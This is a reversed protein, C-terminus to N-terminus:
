LRAIREAVAASAQQPTPAEWDFLSQLGPLANRMEAPFKSPHGSSGRNPLLHDTTGADFFTSFLVYRRYGPLDRRTNPTAAHLMMPDVVFLDGEQMLVEMGSSLDVDTQIQQYVASGISYAGGGISWCSHVEEPSMGQIAAKIKKFCDPLIMIAGGGPPIANLAAMSHYFIQKPTTTYQNPVFGGDVHWGPLPSDSTANYAGQPPLDEPPSPDTRRAFHQM